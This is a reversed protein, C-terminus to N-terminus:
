LVDDFATVQQREAGCFLCKTHRNGIPRGCKPCPVGQTQLKGDTSGDMADIKKVREMLQEDTLDCKESVLSWLALNILTLKDVRKELAAVSGQADSAASRAATARAHAIENKARAKAQGAIGFLGM